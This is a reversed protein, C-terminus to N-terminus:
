LILGREGGIGSRVHSAMLLMIGSRRLILGRELLRSSARSSGRRCRQEHSVESGVSHILLFHQQVSAELAQIVTLRPGKCKPDGDGDAMLRFRSVHHAIHLCTWVGVTANDVEVIGAGVQASPSVM